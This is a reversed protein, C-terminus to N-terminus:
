VPKANPLLPAVLAGPGPLANAAGPLCTHPAATYRIGKAHVPMGCQPLLTGAGFSVCRL